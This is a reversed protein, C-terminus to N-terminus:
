EATKHYHEEDKSINYFELVNEKRNCRLRANYPCNLYKSHQNPRSGDKQTTRAKIGHICKFLCREYILIKAIPDHVNIKTSSAISTVLFTEKCFIDFEKTFIEYSKFKKNYFSNM